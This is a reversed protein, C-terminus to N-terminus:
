VKCPSFWGNKQRTMEWVKILYGLIKGKHNGFFGPWHYDNVRNLDITRNPPNDNLCVWAAKGRVAENVLEVAHGKYTGQVHDRKAQYRFYACEIQNMSRFPERKEWFKTDRTPFQLLPPHTDNKTINFRNSPGEWDYLFLPQVNAYRALAGVAIVIGISFSIVGVSSAIVQPLRGTYTILAALERQHREGWFDEQGTSRGRGSPDYHVAVFGLSAVDEATVETGHDYDTGASMGGPVFIVAPYVGTKEPRHIHIYIQNGDPSDIWAEEWIVPMPKIGTWKELFRGATLDLIQKTLKM